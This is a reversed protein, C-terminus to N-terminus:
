APCIMPQPRALLADLAPERRKLELRGHNSLSNELLMLHEKPTGPDARAVDLAAVIEGFPPDLLLCAVLVKGHSADGRAAWSLQDVGIQGARSLERLHDALTAAMQPTCGRILAGLRPASSIDGKLTGAFWILAEPTKMRLLQQFLADEQAAFPFGTAGLLDLCDFAGLAFATCLSREIPEPGPPRVWFLWTERDPSFRDIYRQLAWSRGCRLIDCLLFVDAPAGDTLALAQHLLRDTLDIQGAHRAALAQGLLNKARDSADM